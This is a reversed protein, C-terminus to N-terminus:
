TERSRCILEGSLPKLSQEDIHIPTQATAAAATDAAARKVKDKLNRKLISMSRPLLLEMGNFVGMRSVERQREEVEYEKLLMQM